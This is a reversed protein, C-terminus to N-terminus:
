IKIGSLWNQESFKHGMRAIYKYNYYNFNMLLRKGIGQHYAYKRLYRQQNQPKKDERISTVKTIKEAIKSGVLNGTAKSTKKSLERQPLRLPMPQLTWFDEELRVAWIRAWKKRLPYLKRQAWNFIEHYVAIMILSLWTSWSVMSWHIFVRFSINRHLYSQNTFYRIASWIFLHFFHLYFGHTVSASTVSM